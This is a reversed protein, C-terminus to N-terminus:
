LNLSVCDNLVYELILSQGNIINQKNLLDEIKEFMSATLIQGNDGRFLRLKLATAQNNNNPVKIEEAIADIARGISWTKSVFVPSIRDAINSPYKINFYVRDVIPITKLGVAKNKIRMLQVKNATEVNKAKRKANELTNDLEKDVSAKAKNFQEVPILIKRKSEAVTKDDVPKCETIHRHQICFHKQCRDCILPVISTSKCGDHSCDYKDEIKKLNLSSLAIDTWKQEQEKLTLNVDGSDAEPDPLEYLPVTIDDEPLKDARWDDDVLDVLYGDIM